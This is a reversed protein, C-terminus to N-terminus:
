KSIKRKTEPLSLHASYNDGIEKYLSSKNNGPFLIKEFKNEKILFDVMKKYDGDGSVLVTKEFDNKAEYMLKMIDFVIDTDVNGKKKTRMAPNHEKFKLIFGAKQIETYLDDNNNDVYGLYYFAQSVNYKDRLYIRLKYLDIEWPCMKHMTTSLYINQGDLFAFNEM